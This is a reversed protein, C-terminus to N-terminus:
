AWTWRFTGGVDGRNTELDEHPCGGVILTLGDNTPATAWGDDGRIWTPFTDTSPLNSWYSYYAAILAPRQHCAEAAVPKAVTSRLGDAGVLIRARASVTAATIDGAAHGKIGCVAGGETLVETVAFGERVDAGADAAADVPDRLPRLRLHVLAGAPV